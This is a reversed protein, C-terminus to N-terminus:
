DLKILLHGVYCRWDASIGTLVPKFAAVLYMTLCCLSKGFLLISNFEFAGIMVTQGEHAFPATDDRWM